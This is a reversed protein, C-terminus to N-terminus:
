QQYVVIHNFWSKVEFLCLAAIQLLTVVTRRCTFWGCHILTKPVVYTGHRFSACQKLTYGNINWHRFPTTGQHIVYLQTRLYPKIPYLSGTLLFLNQYWVDDAKQPGIPHHRLWDSRSSTISKVEPGLRNVCKKSSVPRLSIAGLTDFSVPEKRRCNCTFSSLHIRQNPVFHDM